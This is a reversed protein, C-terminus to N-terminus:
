TANLWLNQHHVEMNKSTFTNLILHVVHDLRKLTPHDVVGVHTIGDNGHAVLRVPEDEKTYLILMVMQCDCLASGHHPCSCGHHAAKASQLDFSQVVQFGVSKLVGTLIEVVVESNAKITLLESTHIM